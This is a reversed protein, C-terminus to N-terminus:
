PDRWSMPSNECFLVRGLMKHRRVSCKTARHSVQRRSWGGKCPSPRPCVRDARNFPARRDFFMHAESIKGDNIAYIDAVAIEIQSGDPQTGHMTFRSVARDHRGWTEEVTRSYDPIM